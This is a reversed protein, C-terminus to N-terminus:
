EKIGANSMTDMVNSQCFLFVAIPPIMMLVTAAMASGSRALGSSTINGIVAPLTRLEDRFISDGPVMAWADRFAFLALTMWAPRAIPMVISTFRRVNGAGDIRAAEMLSVPISADMFQKMLFVGVTSPLAPLIYIWYTDIMGLWSFILYQPLAMSLSNYLLTFQIILFAVKTWRKGSQSFVYAALSAVIVHGVTVTVSIFISNIIYREVTVNLNNLLVPLAAYNQLTIRRVFFRPPFALLEDLPKFSTAISYILPLVAFLGALLLFIGLIVNVLRSRTLRRYQRVAQRM